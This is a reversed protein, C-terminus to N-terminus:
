TVRSSAGRIFQALILPALILLSLAAHL